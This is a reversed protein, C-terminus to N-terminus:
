AAPAETIYAAMSGCAEYLRRFESADRRVLGELPDSVLVDSGEFGYVVVCHENYYWAWGDRMDGSFEPDTMYMTTWVLVPFGDDSLARLDDFSAGTIDRARLNGAREGQDALYANAASVLAPPLAGGSYYPDGAFSTVFDAGTPDVSLYRDVIDTLGLDFGMSALVATLAVSECGAPLAPMQLLEGVNSASRARSPATQVSEVEESVYQTVEASSGASAATNKTAFLYSDDAAYACNKESLGCSGSVGLTALPLAVALAALASFTSRVRVDAVIRDVITKLQSGAFVM